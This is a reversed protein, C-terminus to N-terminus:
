FFVPSALLLSAPFDEQDLSDKRIQPKPTPSKPNHLANKANPNQTSDYHWQCKTLLDTKEYVVCCQDRSLIGIGSDPICVGLVGLINCFISGAVVFESGWGLPVEYM